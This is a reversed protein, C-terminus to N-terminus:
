LQESKLSSYTLVGDVMQALRTASSQIKNLDSQSQESLANTKDSRVREAFLSIKRIPEKMDHSAVHAFQELQQNSLELQNRKLELEKSNKRQEDIDRIFAIFAPEGNQVTQSITLAVYFEKEGKNLA